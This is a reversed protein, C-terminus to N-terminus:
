ACPCPGFDAIFFVSVVQACILGLGVRSHGLDIGLFVFRARLRQGVFVFDTVACELASFSPFISSGLDLGLVFPLFSV